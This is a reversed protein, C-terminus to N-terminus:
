DRECMQIEHPKDLILDETKQWHCYDKKMMHSLYLSQWVAHLSYAVLTGLALGLAGCGHRLFVYSAVSITVGWMVNFGFGVWMEGRGAIAQGIVFNVASLVSSLALLVLVWVGAQFGAGYSEMIPVALISVLSAVVAATGGNLLINFKLVKRYRRHDREGWLNSLLPLAVQGIMTPVFLIAVRWQNAAEFVGLQAYGDPRNVLMANCAWMVPSVLFGSLAAPLSFRWLVLWERSIGDFRIRVGAMAARRHLLIHSAVCRFLAIGLLAWVAGQLGKFWTLGVLLPLAVLGELVNLVAITQFAELGGLAGRQAGYLAGAFLVLAVLRLLGSLHPADILHTAIWPAALTLLISVIFGSLCAFLLSLGILRGAREPETTRFQAVHKSATMGLGFGAFVLFMGTTSRIMGFEGYSERGLFRAVFVYAVLM